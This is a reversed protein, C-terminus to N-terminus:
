MQIIKADDPIDLTLKENFNNIEVSRYEIKLKQDNTKDSINILFPLYTDDVKRFGDYLAEYKVKGKLDTVVYQTTRYDESNIRVKGLINKISDPYILEYEKNSIEVVEPEILLKDSLNVSGSVADILENFPLNIKLVQKIFGPKAKGQYLTNNIVDYFQFDKKSILAYALDIGFPGFFAVKLSDPKKIEVRFNSKTNLEKTIVTITGNGVLTKVKRRNAEVRKVLREGSISQEEEVVKTASCNTLIFAFLVVTLLEICKKM